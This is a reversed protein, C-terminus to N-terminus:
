KWEKRTARDRLHIRNTVDLGALSAVSKMLRIVETIEEPVRDANRIARDATPDPYREANM